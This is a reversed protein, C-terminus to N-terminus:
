GAMGAISVSAAMHKMPPVMAVSSDVVYRVENGCFICPIEMVAETVKSSVNLSFSRLCEPCRLLVYPIGRSDKGNLPVWVPASQGIHALTAQSASTLLLDAILELLASPNHAGKPYFADAIVGSVADAAEYTGSMAVVLIQPFRRHIVSLFEFGSMRPMYLASIVLEPARSNIQLLGDLGDAACSTAYGQVALLMAMTERVSDNDDVVLIRSKRPNSM